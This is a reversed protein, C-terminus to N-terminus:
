QQGLLCHGDHQRDRLQPEGRGRQASYFLVVLEAMTTIALLPNPRLLPTITRLAVSLQQRPTRVCCYRYFLILRFRGTFFSLYLLSAVCIFLLYTFLIYSCLLTSIITCEDPSLCTTGVPVSPCCPLDTLHVALMRCYGDLGLASWRLPSPCGTGFSSSKWLVCCFCACVSVIVLACFVHQAEPSEELQALCKHHRCQHPYGCSERAYRFRRGTSPGAGCLEIRM